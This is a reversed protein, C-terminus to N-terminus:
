TWAACSSLGHEIAWSDCTSLRCAAVVSAWVRSATSHFRLLWCLSFGLCWLFSYGRSAAVLSLRCVAVSVWLLCFVVQSVPALPGAKLTDWSEQKRKKQQERWMAHPITSGWWPNFGHGRCHFHPIKVIPGGPFYGGEAKSMGEESLKIMKLKQNLTLRTAKGKVQVSM